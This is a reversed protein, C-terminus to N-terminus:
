LNGQTPIGIERQGALQITPIALTDFKEKAHICMRFYDLQGFGQCCFGPLRQLPQRAVFNGGLGSRLSGRILSAM